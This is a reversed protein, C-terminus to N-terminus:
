DTLALTAFSALWHTGMYDGVAAHALSASLHADIAREFKVSTMAPVVPMLRRFCWARSLNLGDLHALKPDARDSVHAPQLWFSLDAGKPCFENWWVSFALPSLLRQMLVAEVLGSSLFDDGSPEFRAPYDKDQGFWYEARNRLLQTLRADGSQLSWENALLLAFASNGHTGARVPYTAQPLWAGLRTAIERALPQIASAWRRAEPVSQALHELERALYLLWAWGYPREWAARGPGLLYDLEGQMAAPTFHLDFHRQTAANEACDRQLRYIRALLWHMHVCSHWDYSGFFVPHLQRPGSADWPGALTHALHNPYETAINALAVRAYGSALERTFTIM